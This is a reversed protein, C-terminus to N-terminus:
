PKTMIIGAIFIRSKVNVDSDSATQRVPCPAPPVGDASIGKYSPGKAGISKAFPM